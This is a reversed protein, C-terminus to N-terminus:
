QASMRLGVPESFIEELGIKKAMEDIIGAFRASLRQTQSCCLIRVHDNFEACNIPELGPVPAM